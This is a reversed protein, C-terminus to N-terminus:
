QRNYSISKSINHAPHINTKHSVTIKAPELIYAEMTKALFFGALLVM